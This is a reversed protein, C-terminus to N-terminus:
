AAAGEPKPFVDPRFQHPEIGTMQALAAVREAPVRRAGTEWRSWMALTVGATKAAEEASIQASTRWTKLPTSMGWSKWIPFRNDLVFNEM